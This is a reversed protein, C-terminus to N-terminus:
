LNEEYPISRRLKKLIDLALEIVEDVEDATVNDSENKNLSSVAKICRSLM